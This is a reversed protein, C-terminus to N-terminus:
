RGGGPKKPDPKKAKDDPKVTPTAPGNTPTNGIPAVRTNGGKDPSTAPGGAAPLDSVPKRTGPKPVNAELIDHFEDKLQKMERARSLNLRKLDDDTDSKQSWSSDITGVDARIVFDYVQAKVEKFAPVLLTAGLNNSEAEYLSLESRMADMAAKETTLEGRVRAINDDVRKDIAQETVKLQDMVRAARQALTVLNGGYVALGALEADQAAIVQQRLVRASAIQADGVGALDRGLDIERRVGRLETEILAAEKAENDLSTTTQAKSAAPLKDDPTDIEFKRMAVAMAQTSGIAADVEGAAVDLADYGNREATRRDVYAQEQNGLAAYQAALQRRRDGLGNPAPQKAELEDQIRNRVSILDDEVAHIRLRKNNLVPYLSSKDNAALVGEIREIMAGTQDLDREVDGLDSEVSVLRHVDPQDRLLTIAAEPIPQQTRFIPAKRDALQAIFQAPNINNDVLVALQAYSPAYQAHIEDFTAEAKAYEGHPDLKDAELVGNILQERLMQAKRMHLNGSLLRVTPTRTSQADSQVLLDLAGLAKDFQKNKVYVWAVEFLTDPFLDSHRDILLYNEIARGFQDQEYNIRGLAMQALEIVRRDANTRAKRAIIDTYIETARPLDKKAVYITGTYYAVQLELDGGKPVEALDALAEDYKDSAFAAKAKIYSVNAARQTPAIQDLLQLAQEPSERLAISIEVLRTLAPQYHASGMNSKDTIQTFYNRAGGYDGTRYLTEALYYTAQERETGPNSAIPLLIVSAAAYEGLQFQIIGDALTRSESQTSGPLPRMLDSSLSQVEAEYAAIRSGLEDAAAVGPVCVLALALVRRLM